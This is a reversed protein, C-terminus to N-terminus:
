DCGLVGSLRRTVHPILLELRRHRSRRRVDIEVPFVIIVFPWLPISSAPVSLRVSVRNSTREFAVSVSNPEGPFVLGFHDNCIGFEFLADEMHTFALNNFSPSHLRSSFRDKPGFRLACFLPDSLVIYSPGFQLAEPM